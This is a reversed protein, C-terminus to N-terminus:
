CGSVPLQFHTSLSVNKRALLDNPFLTSLLRRGAGSQFATKEERERLRKTRRGQSCFEMFLSPHQHLCVSHCNHILLVPVSVRFSLFLSVITSESYDMVSSFRDRKMYTSTTRWQTTFRNVVAVLNNLSFTWSWCSVEASVSSGFSYKYFRIAYRFFLYIYKSQKSRYFYKM